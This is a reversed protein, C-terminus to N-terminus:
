ADAPKRKRRTKFMEVVEKETLFKLDVFVTSVFKKIDQYDKGRKDVFQKLLNDIYEMSQDKLDQNFQQNSFIGMYVPFLRAIEFLEPYDRIELHSIYRQLYQFITQRVCENVVSLGEYRSYFRKVAEQVPENVYGQGHIIDMLDYYDSLQDKIKRDVLESIREDAKTAMEFDKTKLLELVYQLWHLDFERMSKRSANLYKNVLAKDERSLEFFGAFLYLIQLYEKSNHLKENAVFARLPALLSSNDAKIRIRHMLFQKLSNFEVQLGAMTVPFEATQFNENQFQKWYRRYGTARETDRRYRDLKQAQLYYRVKKNEISNILNTVWIDSSMAFGMQISQGIRKKIIDFNSSNAIALLVDRFHNQPRVYKFNKDVEGRLVTYGLIKPLFLGEFLPDLLVVEFPILQLPVKAAVEEYIAAIKPEFREKLQLYFTEEEEELYQQLEESEQIEGALVELRDIYEQDLEYM